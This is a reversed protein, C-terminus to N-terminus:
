RLSAGAESATEGIWSMAHERRRARVEGAIREISPAGIERMMSDDRVRYHFLREPIVAGLLGVDHLLAYHLWDEYSTLDHSYGHGADFVSRRFLATCTGAVNNRDILPSWNGYPM